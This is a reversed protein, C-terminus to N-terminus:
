VVCCVYRSDGPSLAPVSTVDTDPKAPSGLATGELIFSQPVEKPVSLVQSLYHVTHPIIHLHYIACHTCSYLCLYGREYPRM